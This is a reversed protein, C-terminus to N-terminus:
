IYIYISLSVELGGNLIKENIKVYIVCVHSCNVSLISFFVSGTSIEYKLNFNVYEISLSYLPVM